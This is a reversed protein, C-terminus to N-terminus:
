NKGEAECAGVASGRAQEGGVMIVTEASSLPAITPVLVGCNESLQLAAREAGGRLPCFSIAATLRRLLHEAPLQCRQSKNAAWSCAEVPRRHETDAAARSSSTGQM